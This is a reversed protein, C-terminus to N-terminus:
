KASNLQTGIEDDLFQLFEDRRDFKFNGGSAIKHGGGEGGVAESAKKAAINLDIGKDLQRRMGRMSVKANDTEDKGVGITPKSPDGLYAMAIGCTIGTFGAESSDFWQINKMQCLGKKDLARVTDIVGQRYESNIKATQMRDTKSGLCAAVGISPMGMRGCANLMDAMTEADMDWDKLIYRSRAADRMTEVCVNSAALKVAIASSLKRKEDDTLESFRKNSAVKADALLKAVGDRDGSVGSIYPETSLYLSDGLMGSAPVLSGGTEIVFGRRKGEDLIYRNPGEFKQKDGEIGGMAIQVLDWNNEDITVALLLSLSSGCAFSMGDIGYLHPNVFAINDNKTERIDVVGHHDLIVADKGLQEYAELYASGMDAMLICDCPAERVKQMNEENLTTFITIRFEKNMRLLVNALVGASALGDADHHSYVQIYNHGRLIDAAKSLNNLLKDPLVNGDM